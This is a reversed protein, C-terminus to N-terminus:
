NNEPLRASGPKEPMRRLLRLRIPLPLAGAARAMLYTLPPFAIRAKNRALDRGIIEAAKEPSIMFPMPFDNVATMPTRIFGPCIVNVHINHAAWVPRLAEGYYRVAAKSASYAPAGPWGAFSALSSMLAIQGSGRAAMLPLVTQVTDLLGTLNIDFIERSQAPPELSPQRVPPGSSPAAGTGGSIGANAIVLDLPCAQDARTIWSALADTDRLCFLGETVIAGRAACEEAIAALRQPHRGSLALHIGPRAYYLALAKGIGSSAGTILISRPNRAPTTKM